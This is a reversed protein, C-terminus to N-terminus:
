FGDMRMQGDDRLRWCGSPTERAWERLVNLITQDEPTIGNKLLPMISQVIESFEPDIGNQHQRKLYSLLFYRLRLDVPIASKFKKNQPLHYKQTEDDLDFYAELLPSLDDYKKTLLDLFGLEIGKIILESNIEEITAGDNGAIVGEATELILDTADDGLDLKMIARPSRVKRFNIILQGSLVTSPHQRKKFSTKNNSQPVAGMYEFGAKEATEVITHWYYYPNKDNFVFSMWRDYKLVRYLERISKSMLDSYEDKTKELRGGEIIEQQRDFDSVPLDLWALWMTSLDLYQIKAGYSPDTYVYDVSESDIDTLDTATGQYVHLNQISDTTFFSTLEKKAARVKNYRSRFYRMVDISAPNPAIRYRYYAFVSSNGRGASRGKSAHYTLNIKNLLGSFMLLLHDRITGATLDMILYKLLALEALQKDSFLQEISEVDSDIPLRIGKPYSYKVLAEKITSETKPALRQYEAAITTYADGLENLAIPQALTQVWFISLPNIDIHIAKRNLVIAEIATIGSGGFPDLILDGKQSFNKIYEQVVNWVQKTFYPHVGYHRKASQKKLDTIQPLSKAQSYFSEGQEYRHEAEPVSVVVGPQFAKPALLAYLANWYHGIESVHFHLALDDRDKEFLAFERGNCLAYYQSRIDPHIAYFYTQEVHSGSTISKSPSKADLVWAPKNATLLLYDPVIRIEREGSGTKVFPHSLSRSRVIRNLGGASYGLEKLIPHIVEERVSDEKFDENNLLQFDFDELATFM